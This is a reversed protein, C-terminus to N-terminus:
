LKIKSNTLLDKHKLRMFYKLPKFKSMSGFSFLLGLPISLILTLIFLFVSSSFGKLLDLTIKSFENM